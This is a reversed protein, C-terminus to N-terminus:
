ARVCEGPTNQKKANMLNEKAWEQGSLYVELSVNYFGAMQDPDNINVRDRDALFFDGDLNFRGDYLNGDPM